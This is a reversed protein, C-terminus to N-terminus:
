NSYMHRKMANLKTILANGHEIFGTISIGLAQKPEDPLLAGQQRGEISILSWSVNAIDASLQILDRLAGELDNNDQCNTHPAGCVIKTSAFKEKEFVV